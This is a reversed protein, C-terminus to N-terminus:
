NCVYSVNYSLSASVSASWVIHIGSTDLYGQVMAGAPWQAGINSLGVVCSGGGGYDGTLISVPAIVVTGSTAPGTGMGLSVTGSHDNAGTVMTASGGTGLGTPATANRCGTAGGICPTDISVGGVIGNAYMVSTGQLTGPLNGPLSQLSQERDAKTSLANCYRRGTASGSWTSNIGESYFAGDILSVFCSSFNPTGVITNTVGIGTVITGNTSAAFGYTGGGSITFSKSGAYNADFISNTGAYILANNAPGFNVDNDVLFIRGNNNAIVDNGSACSTQIKVSGIGLNLGDSVFIGNNTSGCNTSPDITTVTSGAGVIKIMPSTFAGVSAIGVIAGSAVVGKTYTGAALNITLPAGNLNYRTALAMARQLTACQTGLSLCDNADNGSPSLYLNGPNTGFSSLLQFTPKAGPGNSMLVWGATGLPISDFGQNGAGRGIPISYLPTQWQAYTPAAVACALLALLIRIYKM